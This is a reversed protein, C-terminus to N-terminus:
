EPVGPIPISPKRGFGFNIGLFSVLGGKPQNFQPDAFDKGFAATLFISERVKYEFNVTVRESTVTTTDDGQETRHLAETAWTVDGLHQVFRAGFDILDPGEDSPRHIYRVIGLVEIPQEDFRWAPTGWVGWRALKTDAFAHDPINAAVASSINFLFGRRLKDSAQLGKSANELSQRAADQMATMSHLINNLAVGATVFNIDSQAATGEGPNARLLLLRTAADALPALPYTTPSLADTYVDQMQKLIAAIVADKTAQPDPNPDNAISTALVSRRILDDVFPPLAGFGHALNDFAAREGATPEQPPSLHTKNYFATANRLQVTLAVVAAKLGLYALRKPRTADFAKQFAASAKGAALAFDVGVAAGTNDEPIITGQKATGFSISLTQAMSQVIGPALYDHLELKPNLMWYPAIEIAYNTPLLTNSGASSTSVNASLATPLTPRSIETPSVGLLIFAPLDPVTLDLPFAAQAAPPTGSAQAWAASPGTVLLLALAAAVSFWGSTPTDRM